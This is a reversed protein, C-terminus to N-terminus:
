YLLTPPLLSIPPYSPPSSHFPLSLSSFSPHLTINAYLIHALFCPVTSLPIIYCILISYKYHSAFILPIHISVSYSFSAYVNQFWLKEFHYITHSYMCIGGFIHPYLISSFTPENAVSGCAGYSSSVDRLVTGKTLRWVVCTCKLVDDCIFGCQALTTNLLLTILLCRLMIVASINPCNKEKWIGGREAGAGKWASFYKGGVMLGSITNLRAEFVRKRDRKVPCKVGKVWKSRYERFFTWRAEM